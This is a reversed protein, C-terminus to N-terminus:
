KKGALQRRILWGTELKEWKKNCMIKFFREQICKQKHGKRSFFFFFDELSRKTDQLIFAFRMIM